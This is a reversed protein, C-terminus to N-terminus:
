ISQTVYFMRCHVFLDCWIDIPRKRFTLLLPFKIFGDRDTWFTSELLRKNEEFDSSYSARAAFGHVMPFLPM